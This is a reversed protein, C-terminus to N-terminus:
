EDCRAVYLTDHTMFTSGICSISSPVVQYLAKTITPHLWKEKNERSEWALVRDRMACISFSIFCSTSCIDERVSFSAITPYLASTMKIFRGNEERLDSKDRGRRRLILCKRIAFGYLYKRKIYKKIFM